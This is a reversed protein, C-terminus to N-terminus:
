NDASKSVEPMTEAIKESPVLGYDKKIWKLFGQIIIIMLFLIPIATIIACTKITNLDANVLIMTLPVLALMICWFLRLLPSPEENNKLGKTSTTAM